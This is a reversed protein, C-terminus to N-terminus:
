EVEAPCLIRDLVSHREEKSTSMLKEIRDHDKDDLTRMWECVAALLIGLVKMQRAERALLKENLKAKGSM